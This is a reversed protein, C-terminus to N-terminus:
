GQVRAAIIIGRAWELRTIRWDKRCELTRILTRADERHEPTWHQQVEMDDVIYIGGLRLLALATELDRYKGAWTDAFVLDFAPGSYAKLWGSADENLVSVRPDAGLYKRAIGSCNADNDITTLRAHEDMGDALWAASLGTGTGLELMLGGPKSAALCRLLAGLQRDSSMTFEMAKTEDEIAILGPPLSINTPNTM